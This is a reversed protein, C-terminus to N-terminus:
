VLLEHTAYMQMLEFISNGGVVSSYTVCPDENKHEYSHEQANIKKKKVEQGYKYKKSM